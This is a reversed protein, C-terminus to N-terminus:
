LPAPLTTDPLGAPSPLCNLDLQLSHSRQAMLIRIYPNCGLRSSQYPQSTRLQMMPWSYKRPLLFTTHARQVAHSSSSNVAPSWVQFFSSEMKRSSFNPALLFCDNHEAANSELASALLGKSPDIETSSCKHLHTARVDPVLQREPDNRLLSQNWPALVSILWCTNMKRTLASM